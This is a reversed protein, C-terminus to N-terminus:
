YRSTVIYFESSYQGGNMFETGAFPTVSPDNVKAAVRYSGIDVKFSSRQYPKLEFRYSETGSYLVTLV